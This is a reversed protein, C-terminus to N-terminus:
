ELALVKSPRLPSSRVKPPRAPSAKKAASSRRKPSNAPSRSYLDLPPPEHHVPSSLLLPSEETIDNVADNVHISHLEIGKETDRYDYGSGDGGLGLLRAASIPLESGENGDVGGGITDHAAAVADSLDLFFFCTDKRQSQVKDFLGGRKFAQRVYPNISAFFLLTDTAFLDDAFDILTAVAQMDVSTIAACCVVVAKSHADAAKKSLISSCIDSANAYYVAGMPRFVLVGRACIESGLGGEEPRPEFVLTKPVRGLAKTSLFAGRKVQIVASLLAGILIGEQISLLLTAFFTVLMTVVDAIHGEKWAKILVGPKVLSSIAVEIICGLAALPIYYFLSSLAVLSFLVLLGVMFCAVLSVAGSNGNVATRSFCGGTPFANFFSGALNAMGLAVLEQNADLEYGDRDSFVKASAYDEMFGVIAIVIAGPLIADWESFTIPPFDPAALGSPVDGVVDVLDSMSRNAMVVADRSSGVAVVGSANYILAICVGLVTSILASMGSIVLLLRQRRTPRSDNADADAKIRPWHRKKWVQLSILFILIVCTLLVTYGSSEDLHSVIYGLSRLSSAFGTYRPVAIGFLYKLQSIGIILAAASTFGTLVSTSVFRVIIGLRCLGLALQVIGTVFAVEIAMRAYSSSTAEGGLISEITTALLLGILATPGPSEHRSSGFLAYVMLPVASAYLGDIPSMGALLAYAMGQPVLMAAVTIGAFADSKFSSIARGGGYIEPLWRLPPFYSRFREM